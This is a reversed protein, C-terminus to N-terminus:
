EVVRFASWPIKEGTKSDLLEYYEADVDAGHQSRNSCTSCWIHNNTRDWNPGRCGPCVYRWRDIPDSMDIEVPEHADRVSSGDSRMPTKTRAEM